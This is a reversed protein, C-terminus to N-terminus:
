EEDDTKGHIYGVAATLGLIIGLALSANTPLCNNEMNCCYAIVCNGGAGLFFICIYYLWSPM